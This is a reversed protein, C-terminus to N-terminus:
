WVELKMTKAVSSGYVREKHSEYLKTLELMYKEHWKKVEEKTPSEIKPLCIPEGVVICLDVNQKPLLPMWLCGWALIAPLGWRNVALRWKWGGQMNWYCDKEGFIYVPRVAYGYQLCLRIFGTRKQIFVRDQTLCSLTAEEFGGPLLAINEGAKLYSIM